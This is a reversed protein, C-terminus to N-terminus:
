VVFKPLSQPPIAKYDIVACFLHLSFVALVLFLVLRKM